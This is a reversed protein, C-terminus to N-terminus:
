AVQGGALAGYCSLDAVPVEIAALDARKLNVPEVMMRPQSENSLLQCISGLGPAGVELSREVAACLAELSHEELLGIVQVWEWNADSRERRLADRLKDFCEPLRLQRIVTAESAARPKQELLSLVHNLAIRYDGAKTSREHVAVREAGSAIEVRDHYLHATLAARALRTPV